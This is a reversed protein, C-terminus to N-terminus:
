NSSKTRESKVAHLNAAMRQAVISLATIIGILLFYGNFPYMFLGAISYFLIACSLGSMLNSSHSRTLSIGCDRCKLMSLHNYLFKDVLRIDATCVPCKFGHNKDNEM